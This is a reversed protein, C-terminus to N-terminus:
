TNQVYIMLYFFLFIFFYFFLFIFFFYFFLFIFPPIINLFPAGNAPSHLLLAPLSPLASVFATISPQFIRSLLKRFTEIIIRMMKRHCSGTENQTEQNRRSTEEVAAEM